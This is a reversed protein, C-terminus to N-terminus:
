PSSGPAQTPLRVMPLTPGAEGSPARRGDPAETFDWELQAAIPLGHLVTRLRQRFAPREDPPVAFRVCPRQAHPILDAGVLFGLDRIARLRREFWCSPLVTERFGMLLNDLVCGTRCAADTADFAQLCFPDGQIRCWYTIHDKSVICEL